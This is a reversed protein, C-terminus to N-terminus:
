AESKLAIRFIEAGIQLVSMGVIVLLTAAIYDRKALFRICQYFFILSSSILAISLIETLIRRM